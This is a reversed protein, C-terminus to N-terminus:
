ITLLIERTQESYLICGRAVQMCLKCSSFIAIPNCIVSGQSRSYWTYTQTMGKLIIFSSFTKHLGKTVNNINNMDIKKHYLICVGKLLKNM